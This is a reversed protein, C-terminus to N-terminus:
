YYKGPHNISRPCAIDGEVLEVGLATINYFIVGSQPSKAFELYGKGELYAAEHRLEKISTEFEVDNLVRIMLPEDVGTDRSTDAVALIRYRLNRRRAATKVKDLETDM